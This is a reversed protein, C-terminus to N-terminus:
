LAYTCVRVWMHACHVRVCVCLHVRMHQAKKSQWLKRRLPCVPSPVLTLADPTELPCLLTLPHPPPHSM